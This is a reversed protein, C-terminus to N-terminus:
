PNMVWYWCRAGREAYHAEVEAVADRADLGDHLAADRVNNADWVRALEANCYATGVALTQGDALQGVWAAETRHFLRVLDVDTLPQRSHLIPLPMRAMRLAIHHPLCEKKDARVTKQNRRRDYLAAIRESSMTEIRKVSNTDARASSGADSLYRERRAWSHSARM